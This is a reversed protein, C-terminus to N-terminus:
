GRQETQTKTIKEVRKRQVGKNIVQHEDRPEYASLPHYGLLWPERGYFPSNQPGKDKLVSSAFLTIDSLFSFMHRTTM